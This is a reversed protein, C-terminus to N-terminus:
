DIMLWQPVWLSWSYGAAGAGGGAGGGGSGGGNVAAYPLGRTSRNVQNVGEPHDPDRGGAAITVAKFLAHTLVALVNSVGERNAM